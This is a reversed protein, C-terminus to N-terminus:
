NKKELEQGFAKLFNFGFTIARNIDPDRLVKFFDMVGTKRGKELEDAAYQLGTVLSSTVQKTVEPDVSSLAEGAGMVNNLANKVPERNLQEIAIKSVDEKAALLSVAADLLGAKQLQALLHITEEIAQQNEGLQQLLGESVQQKKQEETVVTKQIMTIEKAM